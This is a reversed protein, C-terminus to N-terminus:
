ATAKANLETGDLKASQYATDLMWGKADEIPDGGLSGPLPRGWPTHESEGPFREQGWITGTELCWQEWFETLEKIKDPYKDALDIREGPDEELDFLEWRDKGHQRAGMWVAKWKGCRAAAAGQLEQGYWETAGYIGQEDTADSNRSFFSVWSKGRMSYVVRRGWPAKENNKKEAAPHRIGALELFTPMIDMATAFAKVVQGKEKFLSPYRVVCPVRIGGETSYFKYMRSPATAAQAWRPGYWIFSDHNGLNSIRNDYYKDILEAISQGRLFPEAEEFAGEAGNDSMFLVFTNDLEGTSELHALVKGINQDICDVMGAYVEMARCTLQQERPSMADFEKADYAIVEHPVADPKVLGLKKLAALRALRLADPGADYVGAYKERYKKPCQLPWHPAAFPLYAFFPQERETNSRESFYRLLNKTYYDTSYFGQDADNSTNPVIERRKGDETYLVPTRNWFDHKREFQPEYGFHNTCGPLLSFSKDFGRAAPNNDPRLGLHWKGSMLTHYGAEQLLEPLAVVDFNLYGEHGPRNNWRWPLECRAESMCGVGALHNDTGSLIMSRTPSCAAATHFDTFLVGEKALRDIAPTHIESGYCGVDSYGLDDAVIILLNPKKEPAM